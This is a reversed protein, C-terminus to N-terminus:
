VDNRLLGDLTERKVIVRPKSDKIMIIPPKLIRNYNSSMSYNYAGTSLVALVDGIKAKQIRIDEQILDGSECCKGAITVKDNAELLAKNAILATYKSQYLAYRPNDTMGGDVSVYKRIGPICKIGGVTYLTIGAEGVISRGPEVYIYPADINHKKSRLLIAESMKEIYDCYSIPSDDQTYKIGFGGGLNLEEIILGFTDKIQKIFDMMINAAHVFPEVEFIQSGIHCHLGKLKINNVHKFCEVASLAEGTELAFGFKSDIQGTRIFKHTHADVGPKIRLTVPVIKQMKKAIQNITELEYVNDVVIRGVNNEIAFNLEHPTKNNGHFHIKKADFGAKLATYLEGESVVDIGLGEDKVIRCVELCNLAKSAYLPLGKGNYHKNIADRYMFCNERITKEDMVYLPTGFERALDVTDCGGITLHGLSNVELCKNMFM